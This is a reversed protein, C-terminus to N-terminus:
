SRTNGRGFGTSSSHSGYSEFPNGTGPGRLQDFVGGLSAVPQVTSPSAPAMTSSPPCIPGFASYDAADSSARSASDRPPPNASYAQAQGLYFRSTQNPSRIYAPDAFSPLSYGTNSASSSQQRYQQQALLHAPQAQQSQSQSYGTDSFGFNRGFSDTLKETSPWPAAQPTGAGGGFLGGPGKIKESFPPTPQNALDLDRTRMMVPTAPQGYVSPLPPPIAHAGLSVTSSFMETSSLPEQPEQLQKQEQEQQWKKYWAPYGQFLGLDRQTKTDHPMEHKYKCGQQTFACTGDHVWKSCYIKNKKGPRQGFSHSFASPPPAPGNYMQRRSAAPFLHSSVRALHMPMTPSQTQLPPDPLVKMGYSSALLPPVNGMMPLTDAPILRTFMGNGRDLCYAYFDAPGSVPENHSLPALRSPPEATRDQLLPHPAAFYSPMNTGRTGLSASSPQTLVLASQPPLRAFFAAVNEESVPTASERGAATRASDRPSSLPTPPSNTSSPRPDMTEGAANNIEFPSDVPLHSELSPLFPSLCNPSANETINNGSLSSRGLFLKNSLPDRRQSTDRYTQLPPHQHQLQHQHRHIVRPFPQSNICPTVLHSRSGHWLGLGEQLRASPLTAPRSLDLRGDSFYPPVRGQYLDPRPSENRVPLHRHAAIRHSPSLAERYQNRNISPLNRSSSVFEM